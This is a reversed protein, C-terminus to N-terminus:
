RTFFIAHDPNQKELVMEAVHKAVIPAYALSGGGGCIAFVCGPYAKHTKVLPLGNGTVPYECSFLYEMGTKRIGPFMREVERSLQAYKKEQFAEKPIVGSLKGRMGTMGSDLGQAVIRNDPTVSFITGGSFSSIVCKGPWGAFISVPETAVSFSTRTGSVSPLMSKAEAGVALILKGCRVKKHTSALLFQTDEACNVEEIATNEYIKVGGAAARALVAHTFRYPDISVSMRKSVIGASIEFSFLDSARERSLYEVPLGNHKRLLYEQRLKDVESEQAAFLLSDSRRCGCDSDLNHVLNDLMEVGERCLGFARVARDIGIKEALRAMGGPMEYHATGSSGTGEGYGVPGGSVLATELGEEQLRLACLAGTVGSGIVAIDVSIDETLWPYAAPVPNIQTWLAQEKRTETM